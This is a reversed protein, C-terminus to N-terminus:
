WIDTESSATENYKSNYLASQGDRQKKTIIVPCLKSVHGTFPASPVDQSATVM